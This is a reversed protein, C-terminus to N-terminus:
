PAEGGDMARITACPWPVLEETLEGDELDAILDPDSCAECGSSRWAGLIGDPGVEFVDRKAHLARVRAVEQELAVAVERARDRDAEAEDARARHKELARCASDYADQTPYYPRIELVPHEDIVALVARASWNSVTEGDVRPLISGPDSIAQRTLALVDTKVTEM